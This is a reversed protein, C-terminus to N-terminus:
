FCFWATPKRQFRRCALWLLIFWCLLMLHSKTRTESCVMEAFVRDLHVKIKDLEKATAHCLEDASFVASSDCLRRRHHFCIQSHASVDNTMLSWRMLSSISLCSCIIRFAAACSVSVLDISLLVWSQHHCLHNNDHHRRCNRRRPPHNNHTFQQEYSYCLGLTSHAFTFCESTYSM